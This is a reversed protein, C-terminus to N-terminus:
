GSRAPPTLVILPVSLCLAPVVSVETHALPLRNEGAKKLTQSCFVPGSNATAAGTHILMWVGRYGCGFGRAPSPAKCLVASPVAQLIASSASEIAFDM